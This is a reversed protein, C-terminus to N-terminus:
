RIFIMKKSIVADETILIAFYVTAGADIPKFDYQYTGSEQLQNPVITTVLKGNMDFVRLDVQKSEKLEYVISTEQWFPNPQIKLTLPKQLIPVETAIQKATIITPEAEQPPVISCDELYAHFTANNDVHFGPLLTISQGAKFTVSEGVAVGGTSTITEGAQYTGPHIITDNVMLTTPCDSEECNQTGNNDDDGNFEIIVIDSDDECCFAGVTWVLEYAYGFTGSFTATPDHVDSFQEAEDSNNVSWFGTGTAGLTTNSGCIDLQDDGASAIPCAEPEIAAPVEITGFDIKCDAVVLSHAFIRYFGANLGFIHDHTTSFLFNGLTDFVEFEFAQGSASTVPTIIGGGDGGCSDTLITVEGPILDCTLNCSELTRVILEFDNQHADFREAQIYYTQGPNLCAVAIISGNCCNGPKDDNANLLFTNQFPNDLECDIGEYLAIKTDGNYTEIQVASDIPAVFQYWVSGFLTTDCWSTICDKGPPYPENAETTTNEFYGPYIQDLNIPFAECVNDNNLVLREQLCFSATVAQSLAIRLYYDEGITLDSITNECGNCAYNCYNIPQGFCTDYVEYILSAHEEVEINLVTLDVSETTATFQYWVDGGLNNCGFNNSDETAGALDVFIPTCTSLNTIFTAQQCTDNTPPPVCPAPATFYQYFYNNCTRVGKTRLSVNLSGGTANIGSITYLVTDNITTIAFKQSASGATIVLSDGIIGDLLVVGLTLDFTNDNTNCTTIAMLPDVVELGCTAQLCFEGNSGGNFWVRLKYDEGPTLGSVASSNNHYLQRCYDIPSSFEVCSDGYIEFSMSYADYSDLDTAIVEIGASVATFQYWVDAGSTSCGYFNETLAGATSAVVTQCDSIDPLIIAYECSDNVPPDVCPSLAQFPQSWNCYTSDDYIYANLIYEKGDAVINQVNITSLSDSDIVKSIYIGNGTENGDIISIELNSTPSVSNYRVEINANFLNNTDCPSFTVSVDEIICCGQGPFVSSDYDNCDTGQIEVSNILVDACTQTTDCANFVNGNSDYYGDEDYDQYCVLVKFITGEDYEGNCNNDNGDCVETASPNINEDSDNCDDGPTASMGLDPCTQDPCASYNGSWIRFHGDGDIDPYCSLSIKDFGEDITGNCNNDLNDCIETGGPFVADNFDDCDEYILAPDDDHNCSIALPASFYSDGCLNDRIELIISSPPCSDQPVFINLNGLSYVSQICVTNLISSDVANLIYAEMRTYCDDSFISEYTYIADPYDEINTLKLNLSYDFSNFQVAGVQITPTPLTPCDPENIQLCFTGEKSQGNVRVYHTEGPTVYLYNCGEYSMKCAVEILTSCDEGGYVAVQFTDLTGECCDTQICVVGNEPGVFSYWVDNITTFQDFCAAPAILGEDVALTNDFTDSCTQGISLPIAGECIDNSLNSEPASNSSSFTGEELFVGSDLICDGVDMIGIKFHYNTDPLLNANVTFVTTFGDYQVTTGNTNDVYRTSNNISDCIGGGVNNIAVPIDTGSVFAINENVYEGGDPNPGSIFFGFVDNFPSCFFEMYEESAFVFNFYLQSSDATFDFELLCADCLTEGSVSYTEELPLITETGPMLMLIDGYFTQDDPLTINTSITTYDNYTIITGDLLTITYDLGFSSDIAVSQFSATDLVLAHGEIIGTTDCNEPTCSIDLPLVTVDSAVISSSDGFLAFEWNPLTVQSTAHNAMFDEYYNILTSDSLLIEYNIAFEDSVFTDISLVELTDYFITAGAELGFTDCNEPTCFIDLPFITIDSFILETFPGGVFAPGPFDISGFDTFTEVSFVTSDSLTFTLVKTSASTFTDINIVDTTDYKLIGDPLFHIFTDVSEVGNILSGLLADGPANHQGTANNEDNPGPALDVEGSTLLIGSSLKLNTGSGDFTGVAGEPCNLEANSFDIGSGVLEAVLATADNNAQTELNVLSAINDGPAVKADLYARVRNSKTLLHQNIAALDTNQEFWYEGLIVLVEAKSFDPQLRIKFDSILSFYRELYTAGYTTTLGDLSVQFVRQEEPISELEVVLTESIQIPNGEQANLFYPLLFLLLFFTVQTRM